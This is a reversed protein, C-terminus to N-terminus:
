RDSQRGPKLPLPKLPLNFQPNNPAIAGLEIRQKNFAQQLGQTYPLLLSRQEDNVRNLLEDVLMQNWQETVEWAVEISNIVMICLALLEQEIVAINRELICLLIYAQFMNFDRICSHRVGPHTLKGRRSISHPCKEVLRQYLLEAIEQAQPFLQEVVLFAPSTDLHPAAAACVRQWPLAVQEEVFKFYPTMLLREVEDLKELLLHNTFNFITTLFGLTRWDHSIQYQHQVRMLIPELVYALETVDPLGWAIPASEHPISFPQQLFVTTLGAYQYFDLLKIYVRSAFEALQKAETMQLVDPIYEYLSRTQISALECNVNVLSPRLKAVTVARGQPSAANTMKQYFYPNQAFFDPEFQLYYRASWLDILRKVTPTSIICSSVLM